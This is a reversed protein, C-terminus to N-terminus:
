ITQECNQGIETLIAGEIARIAELDTNARPDKTTLGFGVCM